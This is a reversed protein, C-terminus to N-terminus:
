PGCSVLEVLHVCMFGMGKKVAALVSNGVCVPFPFWIKIM